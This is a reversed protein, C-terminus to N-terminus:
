AMAERHRIVLNALEIVHGHAAIRLADSLPKTTGPVVGSIAAEAHLLATDSLAACIADVRNM